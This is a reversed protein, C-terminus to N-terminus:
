KRTVVWWWRIGLNLFPWLLCLLLPMIHSSTPTSHHQRGTKWIELPSMKIYEKFIQNEASL